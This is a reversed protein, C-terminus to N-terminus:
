GTRDPDRARYAGCVVGTRLGRASLARAIAITVPTKGTGGVLLNGVVILPPGCTVPQATRARRRRRAVAAAIWSLPALALRLLRDGAPTELRRPTDGGTNAAPGEPADDRRTGSTPFWLRLLRSELRQRLSEGLGVAGTVV